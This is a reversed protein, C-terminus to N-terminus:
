ARAPETTNRPRNHALLRYLRPKMTILMNVDIIHNIDDRCSL